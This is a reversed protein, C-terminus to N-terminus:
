NPEPWDGGNIEKEYEGIRKWDLGTEDFPDNALIRACLEDLEKADAPITREINYAHVAELLRKLDEYHGM